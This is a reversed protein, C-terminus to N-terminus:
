AHEQGDLLDSLGLVLATPPRWAFVGYPAGSDDRPVDPGTMGRVFLYLVGGLHEDPHYGPLRWRLFRHQAVTYLMAQLPYTTHLMAEALRDPAYAALGGDSGELRNTKHDVVLTRSQPTRMLLDISGNLYGHLTRGALTPDRLDPAFPRLPDQPSLLSEMLDAVDALRGVGERQGHESRAPGARALGADGGALPLEFELERLPRLALAEALTLDDVLPGMPTRLAATVASALVGVDVDLPQRALQEDVQRRVEAALDSVTVDVDELVGHVLTGLAAGGALDAWPSPGLDQATTITQIPQEDQTGVDSPESGVSIEDDRRVLSSYSTRRWTLDVDRTLARAVLPTASTDVDPLSRPETLMQEVLPGGRAQWLRLRAVAEVDSPRGMTDPVAPDDPDPRFLLRHLGAGTCDWSPAWHMVLRSQARTMAVYLLRLAEGARESSAQAAHERWSPGGGGVDLCREGGTHLRLVDREADWRNFLFPAYVVPYQLGKSVFTTVIQVADADSDLRRARDAAQAGDARRDLLWRLLGSLGLGRERAARQLVHGVHELDTLLRRGGVLGLVREVVKADGTLAEVLGATGRERQLDALDRLHASVADTLADGEADLSVADHGFFPGLAAARVLASRHPSELASLLTVWHRGAESRLVDAGGGRVAPVGAVLLADHVVDADAHREVLVAVDGAGLPRPGDGDDYTADRSILGAIEAALDAAIRERAMAIPVHKGEGVRADSRTLARLRFPADGAPDVLRSGQLAARAPRVVIEPDGLQTGRLVADVAAVLPADSRHNLALTRRVDAQKAARLYTHVDGGRFGYIAQKPDGVLVVTAHGVFARELIQWQVPDTDQFEDVLVIRWRDRMVTRAASGDAQLAEALRQLLDDYSLTRAALRRRASEERVAAAFRRRLDPESDPEADTPLLVAAPDGVARTGLMHAEAPSFPPAQGRGVAQLYLDAVVDEVIDGDDQVLSSGPEVDGATGLSRLVAHCFGHTTTITAEDFRAVARRLRRHRATQEADDADLLGTLLADAGPALGSALVQEAEVLRERVRDKLEASAARGFTVVLLDDLEAVGEAVYRTVLAAIAWTKGTGASAELLTTGGAPLPDAIRFEEPASM